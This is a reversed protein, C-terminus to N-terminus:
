EGDTRWIIYSSNSGLQNPRVIVVGVPKFDANFFGRIQDKSPKKAELSVDFALNGVRADPLRYSPLSDSKDYARKNVRIASGPGMSIRVSDFFYRLRMRVVRDIYNGIAEQPSLRVNLEGAKYLELGEDYADNTARQMFELTVEQLPKIDGRVRYIAAALDAQMGRIVNARAQWSM